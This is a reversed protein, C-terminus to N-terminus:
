PEPRLTRRTDVLPRAARDVGGREGFRAQLTEALGAPGVPAGVAATLIVRNPRTMPSQTFQGSYCASIVVVTPAEGCGVRLATDLEGPTLVEDVSSLYLGEGKVGHSTAYM